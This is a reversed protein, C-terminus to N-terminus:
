RTHGRQLASTHENIEQLFLHMLSIKFAAILEVILQFSHFPVRVNGVMVCEQDMHM